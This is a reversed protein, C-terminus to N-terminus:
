PLPALVEDIHRRLLGMPTSKEVGRADEVLHTIVRDIRQLSAMEGLLAELVLDCALDEAQPPPADAAEFYIDIDAFEGNNYSTLRYSWREANVPQGEVVVILPLPNLSAAKGAVFRWGPLAPARAVIERVSEILPQRRPSLVFDRNNETPALIDWGCGPAVRAVPPDLLQRLAARDGTDAALRLPPEHAAFWRWFETIADQSTM